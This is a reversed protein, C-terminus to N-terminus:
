PVPALANAEPEDDAAGSAGREDDAVMHEEFVAGEERARARPRDLQRALVEDLEDVQIWEIVDPDIAVTEVFRDDM